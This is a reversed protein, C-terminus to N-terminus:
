GQAEKVEIPYERGDKDILVVGSKPEIKPRRVCAECLTIVGGPSPMVWRGRDDLAAGCTHCNPM